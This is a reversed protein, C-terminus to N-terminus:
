KTADLILIGWFFLDPPLSDWNNYAHGADSKYHLIYSGAPLTIVQDVKQNKLAGGAPSAPQGQMQWVIKGNHDTIWGYDCWSSGDGSCNEGVGYIRLKVPRSLTFPRSLERNIGVEGIGAVLKGTPVAPGSVPNNKKYLAYLNRAKLSDGNLLAMTAGDILEKNYLDHPPQESKLIFCHYFLQAVPSMFLDGDGLQFPQSLKDTNCTVALTLRLAPVKVFLASEGPTQGYHWYFDMGQYQQVFWGLGYPTITGNRTRNPTFVQKQLAASIFLNGDIAESYKLLDGATTVLGGFAGFEGSYEMRAIEGKATMNYPVALRSIATDFYPIVGPNIKKYEYFQHLSLFPASSTMKLPILINEMLLRYFPMGSAKEMVSGLLGFRYGNYQFAMGPTGESTHTLLQRLTINPNGLDLDYKSIPDDLNLKGQAVLQMILTSTFTKTVSAVRFSTQATAPVRDKLNALGFGQKLLINKDQKVAVAMGPIKLQMRISDLGAAFRVVRIDQQAAALNTCASLILMLCYKM